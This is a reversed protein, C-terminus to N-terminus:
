RVELGLTTLFRARAQALEVRHSARALRAALVDTERDVYEATTMVGEAFRASAEQFVRERLAIIADDDGLARELRDMNALDRTIGRELADRFASEESAVIKQQLALEERERQTTGWTWPAWEVQVGALWYAHFERALPNLGPRGYGARGFASVRPQDQAAITAQRQGLLERTAAFHEYEPRARLERLTARAHAVATSLDPLALAHADSVTRGTLEGLVALTADRNAVLEALSQRRRLVEAELMAAESPLASGLRVRNRAVGLQTELDAIGVELEARQAELLLAGFYADNVIQRLAFLTATIRAQSEALQARELGVRPRLTPDYIRQRAALHADYTDNPPVPPTVGGPLQFPISPVASQYQGQANAGFAPLREVSLTRLRLTSQAVLLDLQRGRPDRRVADNQLTGLHLTDSPPTSQQAIAPEPWALLVVTAVLALSLVTRPMM